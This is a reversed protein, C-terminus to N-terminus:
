FKINYAIKQKKIDIFLNKSIYNGTINGILSGLLDYAIDAGDFKNDDKSSDYIEKLVGPVMAISTGILLNKSYSNNKYNYDMYVGTATGILFSAGLHKQKDDEFDM